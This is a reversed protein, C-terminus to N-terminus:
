TVVETTATLWDPDTVPDVGIENPGRYWDPLDLISETPASGPWKDDRRCEVLRDLLWDIEQEGRWLMDESMRYVAVDFPAESEAAILVCPTDEPLGLVAVAGRRYLALQCHVASSAVTRSFDRAGIGKATTKLDVIAPLASVFDIRGKMAAGTRADTWAVTVEASGDALYSAAVPHSRVAAGLSKALSLQEGTVVVRQQPDFSDWERGRRPGRTWAVVDLELRGPQLCAIHSATGLRMADTERRVSTLTHHYHAPSKRLHRLSSWNVGPTLEYEVRTGM